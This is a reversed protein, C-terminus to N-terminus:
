QKQFAQICALLDANGQRRALEFSDLGEGDRLFPSASAELLLRAMEVRGFMVAFMLPTRGVHNALDVSAGADLLLRAVPLFGKFAVGALATAGKEDQLDPQAKHALLQEVVGAHNNYSALILPTYGKELRLDPSMGADLFSIVLDTEGDRVADAFLTEIQEQTFEGAAAPPVNESSLQTM